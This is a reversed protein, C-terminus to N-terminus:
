VDELLDFNLIFHDSQLFNEPDELFEEKCDQACFYIRKGKYPTSIFKGEHHDKDCGCASVVVKTTELVENKQLM